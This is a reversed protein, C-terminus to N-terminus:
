PRLGSWLATTVEWAVHSVVVAWLSRTAAFMAGWALGFGVCAVLLWPSGSPVHALTYALTALGIAAAKPMRSALGGQLVGRWLVEEALIAPPLSLAVVAASHGGRLAYVPAFATAAGPLRLVFWSLAVFAAGAALGLATTWHNIRWAGALVPRGLLAALTGAVVLAVVLRTWTDAWSSRFAWGMAAVGLAGAALSGAFAARGAPVGRRGLRLDLALPRPAPLRERIRDLSFPAPVVGLDRRLPGGDGTLGDQLMRLQAPTSLPERALAGMAAVGPRLLMPPTGVIRVREGCADAVRQVVARLSLTDPGVVDYSRIRPGAAPPSALAASVAGAVDAVDVPQLLAEGRGVVPFIPSARVMKALHSLMDDGRGYVVSPRLITADLGSQRLAEEGEWKTRHYAHPGDRASAVVSVHVVRPVGAAKCAAVLRRVLDVHVAQFTQQGKSRKVGVCNVVADCGALAADWAAPTAALADFPVMAAGPVADRSGRGACAVQWGDQLLRAAVHRGIFGTGGLV